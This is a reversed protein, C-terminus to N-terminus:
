PIFSKSYLALEVLSYNVGAGLNPVIYSYLNSLLQNNPVPCDIRRNYTTDIVNGGLNQFLPQWSQTDLNYVNMSYSSTQTFSLPEVIYVNSVIIPSPLQISIYQGGPNPTATRAQYVNSGCYYVNGTQTLVATYYLNGCSIQTINEQGTVLTQQTFLNHNAYDGVALQGSQNNGTGWTSGASDVCMSYKYGCSIVNSVAGFSTIQTFTKYNDINGLGLQGQDNLGTSWISSNYVLITHADGSSIATAKPPTTIQVFTILNTNDGTGLQGSSNLGTVWITGNTKLAVTHNYGCSIATVGSLSTQAFNSISQTINNLGLQGNTNLGCSWVTGSSRVICIHGFGCSVNNVNTMSTVQTFSQKSFIDGFGLQGYPNQGITWLNGNVDIAATFQYGEAISIFNMENPLTTFSWTDTGINNGFQTFISSGTTVFNVNSIFDIKQYTNNQVSQGVLNTKWGPSTELIDFARTCYQYDNQTSCNVVYTGNGWANNSITATIPLSPQQLPPVIDLSSPPYRLLPPSYYSQTFINSYTTGFIYQFETSIFDSTAVTPVLPNITGSTDFSFVFGASNGSQLGSGFYTPLTYPITQSIGPGPGIKSNTSGYPFFGCAALQGTQTSVAIDNITCNTFGINWRSNNQSSIKTIQSGNTYYINNFFDTVAAVNTSTFTNNVTKNFTTEYVTSCLYVNSLQDPRIIMPVNGFSISNTQNLSIPDFTLVSGSIVGLYLTGNSFAIDSVQQGQVVKSSNIAGNTRNIRAVTLTGLSSSFILPAVELEYLTSIYLNTLLTGQASLTNSSSVIYTSTLGASISTSTIPLPLLSFIGNAGGSTSQGNDNSGVVWVNGTIGLALAHAGGASVSVIPETFSSPIAKTFVISSPGGIQVSNYGSVFINSNSVVVSFTNGSSINTVGTITSAQTFNSKNIIDNVGLQGNTNLGTGWITGDTKLAVTHNYGCSVNSTNTISNAQTFITVPSTFNNLGLQGEVNRGTTYPILSQILSSHYAGCSIDSVGSVSSVKVFSTQNATSGIGLQGETNLGSAYVDGNTLLLMSHKWGTACKKVGSISVKVFSTKNTTSGIGLQGVDNLGIAYIDGSTTLALTHQNMCSVQKIQVKTVPDNNWASYITSSTVYMSPTQPAQVTWINNQGIYHSLFGTPGQSYVNSGNLLTQDYLGTVFYGGDVLSSRIKSMQNVFSAGSIQYSIGQILNYFFSCRQDRSSNIGNFDGQSNGVTLLHQRYDYTLSTINSYVQTSSQTTINSSVPLDFSFYSIQDAYGPSSFTIVVYTPVNIGSFIISSSTTTYSVSPFSYPISITISVPSTYFLTVTGLYNIYSVNVQLQPLSLSKSTYDLLMEQATFIPKNAYVFNHSQAWITLFYSGANNKLNIIFRQRDLRSFNMSGSPEHIDDPYLAFSYIGFPLSPISKHYTLPAVYKLYKAPLNFRENDNALFQVNDLLDVVNGYVDRVVFYLEFIPDVFATDLQIQTSNVCPVKISQIKRTRQKYEPIQENSDILSYDVLLYASSFQDSNFKIRIQDSNKHQIFHGKQILYFPLEQYSPTGNLLTNYTSEQETRLLLSQELPIFDGPISELIEDNVIYEAYELGVRNDSVIRIKSIYDGAKPINILYECSPFVNRPFPVKITQTCYRRM